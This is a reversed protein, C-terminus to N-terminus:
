MVRGREKFAEGSQKDLVVIKIYIGVVINLGWDLPKWFFTGLIRFTLITHTFISCCYQVFNNKFDAKVISQYINM